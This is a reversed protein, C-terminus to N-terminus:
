AGEGCGLSLKFKLALAYVGEGYSLSLELIVTCVGEGCSLKFMLSVGEVKNTGVYRQCM